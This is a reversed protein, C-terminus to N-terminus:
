PTTSGETAPKPINIVQEPNKARWKRLFQIVDERDRIGYRSIAMAEHPDIDPLASEAAALAETLEEAFSLAGPRFLPNQAMLRAQELAMRGHRILVELHKEDILYNM